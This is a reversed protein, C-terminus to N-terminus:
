KPRPRMPVMDPAPTPQTGPALGNAPVGSTASTQRREPGPNPQGPRLPMASFPTAGPVPASPLAPPPKPAVPDPAQDPSATSDAMGIPLEHAEGAPDNFVAVGLGIERLTWGNLSDGVHLNSKAEGPRQAVLVATDGKRVVGLCEPAGIDKPKFVTYQPKAPPAIVVPPQPGPPNNKPPPRTGNIEISARQSVEFPVFPNVENINFESKFDGIRPITAVFAPLSTDKTRPPGLSTEDALNMIVWIVLVLMGLIAVTAILRPLNM